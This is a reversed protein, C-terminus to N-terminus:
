WLGIDEIYRVLLIVVVSVYFVLVLVLTSDVVLELVISITLSASAVIPDWFKVPELVVLEVLIM